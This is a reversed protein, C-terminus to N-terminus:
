FFYPGVNIGQENKPFGSGIAWSGLAILPVVCWNPPFKGLDETTDIGPLEQPRKGIRAKEVAIRKLLESSPEDNPDQEVLKGRVVLKRPEQRGGAEASKGPLIRYCSVEPSRVGWVTGASTKRSGMLPRRTEDVNVVPANLVRQGLPEYTTGLHRAAANLTLKGGQCASPPLSNGAM